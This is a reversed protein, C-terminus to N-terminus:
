LKAKAEEALGGDDEGLWADLLGEAEAARPLAGGSKMMWAIRQVMTKQGAAM